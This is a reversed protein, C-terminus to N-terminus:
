NEKHAHELAEEINVANYHTLIRPLTISEWYKLTGYKTHNLHPVRSWLDSWRKDKGVDFGEYEDKVFLWRHHYIKVNNKYRFIKVPISKNNLNLKASQVIKPHYSEDFDPSLIFSISNEKPTFKIINFELNKPLFKVADQVERPFLHLYSKHFYISERMQKGV